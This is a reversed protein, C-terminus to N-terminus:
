SAQELKLLIPLADKSKTGSRTVGSLISTGTEASDAACGEVENRQADSREPHKNWQDDIM